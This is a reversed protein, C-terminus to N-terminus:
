KKIKEEIFSIVAEARKEITLQEAKKLAGCSLRQTMTKDDRLVKIANAIEDLNTPDIMISNTEDLVDWNFPRNSSVIPLGCAMAEVVANCCGEHLTPLVFVDAANLYLPVQDHQLVGKFLINKCEPEQDGKGIFISYIDEGEIREIAKAVRVSGKRENFWGVFAVIFVNDPLGLQKRSEERDRKYFLSTNVSNPYVLCKEEVTLGMQISENKNKTSVCIVGKVYDGFQKSDLKPTFLAKIESEGSAVFLPINKQKAYQYGIYGSNWFHCYIVDPLLQLQRFAKDLARHHLWKSPYFKGIHFNSFSLYGPRYVTVSGDGQRYFERSESLRHYHSINFPAIVHCCHGLQAIADVLQKVFAYESTNHKGPYKYTIICIDM